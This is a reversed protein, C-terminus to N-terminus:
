KYVQRNNSHFNGVSTICVDLMLRVLLQLTNERVCKLDIDLPMTHNVWLKMLM